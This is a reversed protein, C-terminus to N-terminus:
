SNDTRFNLFQKPLNPTAINSLVEYTGDNLLLSYYDNPLQMQQLIQMFFGSYYITVNKLYM